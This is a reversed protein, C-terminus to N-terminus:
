TETSAGSRSVNLLSHRGTPSGFALHSEVDLDQGGGLGVVFEGVVPRVTEGDGGLVGQGRELLAARGFAHDAGQGADGQGDVSGKWLEGVAGPRPQEGHGNNPAM